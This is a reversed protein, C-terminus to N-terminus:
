PFLLNGQSSGGGGGGVGSGGCNEGHDCVAISKMYARFQPDDEEVLECGSIFLSFSILIIFLSKVYVNRFM